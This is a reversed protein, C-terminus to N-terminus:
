YLRFFLFNGSKINSTLKSTEKLLVSNQEDENDKQVNEEHEM